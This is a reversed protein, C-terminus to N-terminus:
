TMTQEFGTLDPDPFFSGSRESEYVYATWPATVPLDPLPIEAVVEEVAPPAENTAAELLSDVDIFRWLLVAAGVLGAVLTGLLLLAAGWAWPTRHRPPESVPIAMAAM